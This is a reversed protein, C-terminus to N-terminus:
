ATGNHLQERRDEDTGGNRRLRSRFCLAATHVTSNRPKRQSNRRSKHIGAQAPIVLAPTAAKRDLMM